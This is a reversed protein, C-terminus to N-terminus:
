ELAIVSDTMQLRRRLSTERAELATGRPRRPAGGCSLTSTSTLVVPVKTAQFLLPIGHMSNENRKGNAPMSSACGVLISAANLCSRRKPRDKFSSKFGGPEREYMKTEQEFCVSEDVFEDM